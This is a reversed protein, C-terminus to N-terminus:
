PAGSRNGAEDAAPTAGLTSVGEGASGGFDGQVVDDRGEFAPSGGEVTDVISGLTLQGVAAGLPADPLVNFFRNVLHEDGGGDTVQGLALARGESWFGRGRLTTPRM